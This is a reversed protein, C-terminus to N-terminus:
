GIVGARLATTVLAARDHIGAKKRINAMMSKVRSVPVKFSEAILTIDKGNSLLQLLKIEKHTLKWNLNQTRNESKFILARTKKSIIQKVSVPDKKTIFLVVNDCGANKSENALNIGYEVGIRESILTIKPPGYKRFHSRIENGALLHIWHTVGIAKCVKLYNDINKNHDAILATLKTKL